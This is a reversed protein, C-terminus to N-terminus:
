ARRDTRGASNGYGGAIVCWAGAVHAPICGAGICGIRGRDACIGDHRWEADDEATCIYCGGGITCEDRGPLDEILTHIKAAQSQMALERYEDMPHGSLYLGTIEKEMALLERRSFEEVDPLAIRADQIEENGMGFLDLQGEVNRRRSASSAELVRSAVMLLQRRNAGLSDFAGAKILSELARRNLDYSSLRDCFDQFSRYAGGQTREQVLQKMFARGVNKIASLGFRISEGSVSFEDYSENVDPPLM